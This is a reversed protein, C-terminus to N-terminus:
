GVVDNLNLRMIRLLIGDLNGARGRWGTGPGDTAWGALFRLDGVGLGAAGRRLCNGGHELGALGHPSLVM